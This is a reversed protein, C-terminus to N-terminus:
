NQPNSSVQLLTNLKANSSAEYDTILESVRNIINTAQIGTISPRGDPAPSATSHSGDEIVDSTNTIVSSMSRANWEDLVQNAFNYAQSLKDAAVRIKENSFTIAEADTIAM